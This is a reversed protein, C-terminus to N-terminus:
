KKGYELIYKKADEKNTYITGDWDNEIKGDFSDIMDCILQKQEPTDKQAMVSMCVGLANYKKMICLALVGLLRRPMSATGETAV